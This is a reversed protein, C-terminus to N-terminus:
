PEALAVVAKLQDLIQQQCPLGLSNEVFHQYHQQAVQARKAIVGLYILVASLPSDLHEEDRRLMLALHTAQLPCPQMELVDATAEFLTRFTDFCGARSWHTRSRIQQILLQLRLALANFFEPEESIAQEVLQRAALDQHEHAAVLAKLYYWDSAPVGINEIDHQMANLQRKLNLLSVGIGSRAQLYAVTLHAAYRIEPKPSNILEHVIETAVQPDQSLAAAALRNREQSTPPPIFAAGRMWVTDGYPTGSERSVGCEGRGLQQHVRAAFRYSPPNTQHPQNYIDVRLPVEPWAHAIEIGANLCLWMSLIVLELRMM